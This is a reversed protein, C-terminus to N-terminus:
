HILPEINDRQSIDVLKKYGTFRNIVKNNDVIVDYSGYSPSNVERTVFLVQPTSAEGIMDRIMFRQAGVNLWNNGVIIEDFNTINSLHSIGESVSWDVSVGITRFTKYGLSEYQNDVRRIIRSVAQKTKDMTSFGCESSGVFVLVLEKGRQIQHYNHDTNHWQIDIDVTPFQSPYFYFVTFSLAFALTGTIAIRYPTM